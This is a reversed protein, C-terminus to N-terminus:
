DEYYGYKEIMAQRDYEISNKSYEEPTVVLRTFPDSCLNYKDKYKYFLDSIEKTSIAEEKTMLLMEIELLIDCAAKQASKTPIFEKNKKM